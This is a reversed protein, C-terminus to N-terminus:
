RSPTRSSAPVPAIVATIIIFLRHIVGEITGEIMVIDSLGEQHRHVTAVPRFIKLHSSLKNRPRHSDLQGLVSVMRASRVCGCIDMPRLGGLLSRTSFLELHLLAEGGEIHPYALM